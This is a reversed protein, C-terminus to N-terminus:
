RGNTPNHNKRDYHLNNKNNFNKSLFEVVRFTPYPKRISATLQYLKLMYKARQYVKRTKNYTHKVRTTRKNCMHQVVTQSLAYSM